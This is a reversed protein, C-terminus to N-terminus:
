RIERGTLLLRAPSLHQESGSPSLAEYRERARGAEEQLGQDELRAARVRLRGAEVYGLQRDDLEALYPDQGPPLAAALRDYLEDRHEGVLFDATGTRAARHTRPALYEIRPDDDTNLEAGAFLGSDTVNGGYLRLAMAEIQEDALEPDGLGPEGILDRVTAVADSPDLPRSREEGVLAVISRNPFLDGRWLSVHGFVEDMTRAIIALEQESVQYLPVWQVYRGGPELREAATRYHELTYLNGTGAKWPTFLDSVILDYTDESRRLCNRGDEAHIEARADDFLGFQWDAFYAEALDVVDPIIECAVVRDVDFPMSAGATIGTGLGLYFVSRVDARGLLPIVTQNRESDLGRTSGLTYFNNVRLMRDDYTEVVAATAAAGERVELVQEGPGSGFRLQGLGQPDVALLPVLGVAVVAAIGVRGRDVRRLTVVLLLVAYVASMLLLSRWAGVTPLLVFGAALSGLIAGFTNASVLRGLADGAPRRDRQLHRLLYPLLAGLVVAPLVMTVAATGAVAAVYGGWDRDAGVYALGDTVTHFLWPAGATVALSALLLGGLVVEPSPRSLRALLNAVGAGLALALLFATLVLAYTYASNQLVQAFLRTFVVEVALTAFGSAFALVWVLRAPLVLLGREARDPAANAMPPQTPPAVLAEPSPAQPTAPEPPTAARPPFVPRPAARRTGRRAALVIATVGVALDLGIALLYANRFGLALPLVFGAALAGAASGATNVAYLTTGTTALRDRTRVLHQGMLPLTGGMLLAPPFLLTAAVLAKATTDLVPADGVLAHMRPYLAHYVDLLVFHGLATVAVGVELLGFTRLSDASRAARRGWFWGGVAIGAFFIAITLAAAQATSGFLLGLQRVWLVQYVLAAFGSVFFLGLLGVTATVGHGRPTQSTAPPDDVLTESV